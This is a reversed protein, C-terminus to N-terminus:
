LVDGLSMPHGYAIAHAAKRGLLLGIQSPPLGYGPRISRIDDETLVEGEAIDRIAYVSRRLGRQPEQRREAPAIAHEAERVGAVMDAFDSPIFSFADDATVLGPLKIHREIMVAGRAVAIAALVISRSHDSLGWRDWRVPLDFQGGAIPAPYGPPCALLTVESGYVADLAADLEKTTTMGCSMIMPLGTKAAYALLPTDVIELTAIKLARPSLAAIHDVSRRCFVSAVFEMGKARAREAILGHWDWPTATERYLDILYRGDWLGGRIIFGPGDHDLTMTEPDFCQTKVATAGAAAAYDVLDLANQLSGGHNGSMEAIIEVTM